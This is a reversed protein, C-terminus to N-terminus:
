LPACNNFCGIRDSLQENRFGERREREGEKRFGEYDQHCVTRREASAVSIGALLIGTKWPHRRLSASEVRFRPYKEYNSSEREKEKKIKNRGYIYIYRRQM